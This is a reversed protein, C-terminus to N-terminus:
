GLSCDGIETAWGEQRTVSTFNQAAPFKEDGTYGVIILCIRRVIIRSVYKNWRCSECNRRNVSPHISQYM